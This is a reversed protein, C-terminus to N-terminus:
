FSYSVGVNVFISQDLNLEVSRGGFNHNYDGIDQFQVGALASWRNNIRYEADVGVYFGGLWGVDNGSGSLSTTVGGGNPILTEKWSANATLIGMALGGSVHIDVNTTPMYDVYPGLRFGWLDSDFDQQVLLTASGAPASSRGIRPYNLV